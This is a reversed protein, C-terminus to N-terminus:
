FYILFCVIIHEVSLCALNNKCMHVLLVVSSLSLQNATIIHISTPRISDFRTSYLIFRISDYRIQFKLFYTSDFRTSYIIFRISGFEFRCKEIRKPRQAKCLKCQMWRVNDLLVGCNDCRFHTSIKSAPKLIQTSM